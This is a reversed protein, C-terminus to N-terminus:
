FELRMMKARQVGSPNQFSDNGTIGWIVPCYDFKLDDICDYGDTMCIFVDYKKKNEKIWDFSSAIVTGGFSALKYNPLQDQNSKNYSKLTDEHVQTSFCWIDINFSKFSHM